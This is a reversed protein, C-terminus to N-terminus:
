TKRCFKAGLNYHDIAIRGFEHEKLHHEIICLIEPLEPRLFNISENTKDNIGRIIQHFV